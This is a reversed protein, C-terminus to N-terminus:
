RPGAWVGGLAPVTGAGVLGDRHVGARAQVWLVAMTFEEGAVGDAGWRPLKAGVRILERQVARVVDGRDPPGVVRSLTIRPRQGGDLAKWTRPGVIGDAVLGAAVQLGHVADAVRPGFVGDAPGPNWGLTALRTQLIRVSDSPRHNGRQLVPRGDIRPRPAPVIPRGGGRSSDTLIDLERAVRMRFTGMDFNPDSKRGTPYCIEKHALVDAPDLHYGICLAACVQAYARVQVDPWDTVVGPVGAAEAELGIARANAYEVQKVQGAHYCLGAAIIHIVGSRAIFLHALPGDLGPRGDRVVPLSPHDGTKPGATHHCAITDVSRMGGHGRVKWGPEEVIPLAPVRRLVAPLDLLYM